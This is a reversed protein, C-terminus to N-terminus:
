KFLKLYEKCIYHWEYKFDLKNPKYEEFNIRESLIEILELKSSFYVGSDGLVERNFVSKFAIIPKGIEVAEVLTPNTGGVKHGHIYAKANSRLSYLMARDYEPGYYFINSHESFIHRLGEFFSTSPGIILLKCTAVQCFAEIIMKINNEPELRMVVIFYDQFHPVCKINLKSIESKLDAGYFLEVSKKKYWISYYRTIFTSDTVRTVYNSNGVCWQCFKFYAKAFFSWKERKWEFGDVNCIVRIGFMTYLWFFPSTSYGFYIIQRVGLLRLRITLFIQDFIIGIGNHRRFSIRKVNRYEFVSDMLTYDTPVFFFLDSNTKFAFEVVKFATQDFAGYSAPLGRIGIIGVKRM